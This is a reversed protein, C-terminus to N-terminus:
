TAHTFYWGSVKELYDRPSVDRRYRPSSPNRDVLSFPPIPPAITRVSASGPASDATGDSAVATCTWEQDPGVQDPSVIPGEIVTDAHSWTFDYTLEDDDPDLSEAGCRLEDEGALPAEPFVSVTPPGPPLNAIVVSATRTPGEHGAADVGYVTVEWREDRATEAAPVTRVGDLSSLAEGDRSWRIELGAYDGDPDTPEAEVVLELDRLTDPASPEIAVGEAASPPSGPDLDPSETDDTAADTCAVLLLVPLALRRM